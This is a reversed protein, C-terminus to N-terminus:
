SHLSSMSIFVLILGLRDLLEIWDTMQKNWLQRRQQVWDEMEMTRVSLLKKLTVWCRSWLFKFMKSDESKGRFTNKIKEIVSTKFLEFGGWCFDDVHTSIIGQLKEDHFRTSIAQNYKSVEAGLQLLLIKVTLYWSRSADTLGYVCKSLQSLKSTDRVAESPPLLYFSRDIEMEQPFATKICLSNCSWGSSAIVALAVTFGKKFYSPSDSRVSGAEEDQFGLAVLRAKISKIGKGSKETWM